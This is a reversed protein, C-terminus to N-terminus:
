PEIVYSKKPSPCYTLSYDGKDIGGKMTVKHDYQAKKHDMLRRTPSSHKDTGDGQYQENWVEYFGSADRSQRNQQLENM